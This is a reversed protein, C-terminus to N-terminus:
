SGSLLNARILKEAGEIAVPDDQMHGFTVFASLLTSAIDRRLETLQHEVAAIQDTVAPQDQNDLFDIVIEKALLGASQGEEALLRHFKEDYPQQLRFNVRGDFGNVTQPSVM